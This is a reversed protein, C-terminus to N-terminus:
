QRSPRLEIEVVRVYPISAGGRRAPRFKWTQAAKVLLEDYRPHAGKRMKATAVNGNEDISLELSGRFTQNSETQNAPTWQPMPQYVAEPSTVDADV